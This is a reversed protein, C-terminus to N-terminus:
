PMHARVAQPLSSAKVEVFGSRHDFRVLRVQAGREVMGNLVGVITRQIGTIHNSRWGALDSVDCWITM